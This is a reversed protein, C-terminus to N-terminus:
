ILQMGHMINSSLPVDLHFLSTMHLSSITLSIYQTEKILSKLHGKDCLLKVNLLYNHRSKYQFLM